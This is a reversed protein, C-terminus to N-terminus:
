IAKLSPPICDTRIKTMFISLMHVNSFHITINISRRDFFDLGGGVFIVRVLFQVWM